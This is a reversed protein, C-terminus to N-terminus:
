HSPMPHDNYQNGILDVINRSTIEIRAQEAAMDLMYALMQLDSKESLNKLNKLMDAIYEATARAELATNVSASNGSV